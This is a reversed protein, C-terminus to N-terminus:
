AARLLNNGDFAFSQSLVDGNVEITIDVRYEDEGDRTIVCEVADIRDDKRLDAEVRRALNPDFVGSLADEIGVGRDPDDINSGPTEILRHFVDQWLVEVPDTVDVDFVNLDDFCDFDDDAM